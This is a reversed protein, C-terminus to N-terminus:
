SGSAATELAAIRAELPCTGIVCPTIDRLLITFGRVTYIRKIVHGVTKKPVYDVRDEGPMSTSIYGDIWSPDSPDAVQIGMFIDVFAM